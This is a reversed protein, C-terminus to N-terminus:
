NCNIKFKNFKSIFMSIKYDISDPTEDRGIIKDGENLFISSAEVNERAALKEMLCQFKEHKRMPHIEVKGQWKVKIRYLDFDYSDDLDEGDDAIQLIPDM